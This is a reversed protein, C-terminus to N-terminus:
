RWNDQNLLTTMFGQASNTDFGHIGWSPQGLLANRIDFDIFVVRGRDIRAVLPPELTKNLHITWGRRGHLAPIPNIPKLIVGTKAAIQKRLAKAFNGRGGITEVLVTSGETAAHIVDNVLIGTAENEDIGGVVILPKGAAKSLSMREVKWRNFGTSESDWNGPHRALVISGSTPQPSIRLRPHWADLEAAGCCINIMVNSLKSKERRVLAQPSGRVLLIRDRISDHWTTVRIGTAPVLLSLSWHGTDVKRSEIDPCLADAVATWQRSSKGDELMVIMGGRDLYRGLKAIDNPIAKIDQIFLLPASLWTDISDEHTVLRWGLHRETAHAIRSALTDCFRLPDVRGEDVVLECLALPVRGRSLFLLAFSLNVTSGKAKTVGCHADLVAQAGDLFWDRNRIEALGCTMAVRELAYLYSMLATGGTNINTDAHTNLWAIANDIATHLKMADQKSLDDKFIEDVGLLCNLGAVTMNPTAEGVSNNQEYSWGGNRHQTALTANAIASWCRTPISAGSRGAERLANMGFQRVLPSADRLNTPPQAGSGWGGSSFGMTSTLRKADKKLRREFRDPLMSWISTRLSLVYTSPNDIEWLYELSQQLEESNISVGSALLALATIATTGGKNKSLWGESEADEWCEIPDHRLGLETSIMKIADNVDSDDLSPTSVACTTSVVVCLFFTSM